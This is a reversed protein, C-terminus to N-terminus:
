HHHHQHHHRHQHNCDIVIIFLLSSSLSSSSSSSPVCKGLTQLKNFISDRDVIGSTGYEGSLVAFAEQIDQKGLGYTPRHNCYVTHLYMDDDNNDDNKDDNNDDDDDDDDDDSVKSSSSLTSRILLCVPRQTSWTSSRM